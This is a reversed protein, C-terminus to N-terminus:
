TYNFLNECYQIAQDLNLSNNLLATPLSNLIIFSDNLLTTPLSNLIIYRIVPNYKEIFCNIENNKIGIILRYDPLIFNFTISTINDFIDIFSHMTLSKCYCYYGKFYNVKMVEQCHFCKVELFYNFYDNINM